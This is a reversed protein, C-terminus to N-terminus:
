AARVAHARRKNGGQENGSFVDVIQNARGAAADIGDLSGTGDVLKFLFDAFFGAEEIEIVFELKETDTGLAGSRRREKVRQRGPGEAIDSRARREPERGIEKRM